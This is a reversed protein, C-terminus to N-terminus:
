NAFLGAEQVNQGTSPDYFWRNGPSGFPAYYYVWGSKGSGANAYMWPYNEESIWWWIGLTLEYFAFEELDSGSTYIWGHELHYVFPYDGQDQVWGFWDVQRWGDTFIDDSGKWLYGPPRNNVVTFTSPLGLREIDVPDYSVFAGNADRISVELTWEGPEAFAPIELTVPFTIDTLSPYDFPEPRVVFNDLEKESPSRAAIYFYNIGALDDIVDAIVPFSAPGNTVDAMEDFELNILQPDVRDVPGSNAVTIVGDDPIPNIKTDRFAGDSLEVQLRYEGEPIYQPITLLQRLTGQNRDGSILNLNGDRFWEDLLRISYFEETHRMSIDVINLGSVQDAFDIEVELNGAAATVDFSTASLRVDSIQPPETDATGNNVVTLENPLGPPLSDPDSLDYDRQLGFVDEVRVQDLVYIGPREFEGLFGTDEFTLVKGTQSVVDRPARMIFILRNESDEPHEYIIRVEDVGTLDDEAVVAIPVELSDGDITLETQPFTVSLIEPPETEVPGNNVVNVSTPFGVPFVPYIFDTYYNGAQDNLRLGELRYEGPLSYQPVEFTALLTGKLPAGTLLDDTTLSIREFADGNPDDVTLSLSSLGSRDDEFGFEMTVMQSGDTVDVPEPNITLSTVVTDTVDAGASETVTIFETSGPPLPKDGFHGYKIENKARDRMLVQVRHEGELIFQPVEITSEFVDGNRNIVDLQDYIAGSNIYQSGGSPSYVYVGILDVGSIDDTFEVRWTLFSTEFATNAVPDPFEVKILEPPTHDGKPNVVTFTPDFDQRIKERRGNYNGARLAGDGMEDIVLQWEGEPAFEGMRVDFEVTATESGETVDFFRWSRGDILESDPDTPTISAWFQRIGTLDDSVDITFKVSAPGDTLDLVKPEVTIADITPKEQDFPGNNVVQFTRDPIIYSFQRTDDYLWLEFTREGPPSKEPITFTMRYTGDLVTGSVIKSSNFGSKLGSRDFNVDVRASEFGSIDDTIDFEFELEAPGNTVDVVTPSVRMGQLEPPTSDQAFVSLIPALLFLLNLPLPLRMANM